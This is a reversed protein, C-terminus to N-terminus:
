AAQEALRRLMIRGMAAHIMAEGTEPSREHDRALRRSRSPWAFTREVVRRRPLVRFGRPREELGYRRLHRDPRRPAGPRWGREAGLRRAFGGAHAGGARVPGPRPLGSPAVRGVSGRAGPGDRLDAAHLHAPV